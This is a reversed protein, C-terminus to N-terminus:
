EDGIAVRAWACGRDTPLSTWDRGHSENRFLGLGALVAYGTGGPAFALGVPKAAHAFPRRRWTLGQDASVYLGGNWTGAWIEGGTGVSVAQVSLGAAVISGSWSRGQDMSVFVGHDQTAVVWQGDRGFAMDVIVTEAPLAAVATWDSHEPRWAWLGAGYTGAYVTGWPAMAMSLVRRSPLGTSLPSWERHGPRAGFVGHGFTGALWVGERTMAACTVGADSLFGVSAMSTQRQQAELAQIESQAEQWQRYHALQAMIEEQTANDRKFREGMRTMLSRSRQELESKRRALDEARRVTDAALDAADLMYVGRGWVKVLAKAGDPSFHIFAVHGQLVREWSEGQSRFLGDDSALYVNGEPHAAVHHIFVEPAAVKRWGTGGPRSRYLGGKEPSLAILGGDPLVRVQMIRLVDVPVDGGPGESARAAGPTVIGLLLALLVFFPAYGGKKGPRDVFFPLQRPEPREEFRLMQAVDQGSRMRDRITEAHRDDRLPGM